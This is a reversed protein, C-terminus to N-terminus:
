YPTGDKRTYGNPGARLDVDPYECVDLPDRTGVELYVAPRGSRNVFCHADPHGARFACAQGARVVTEGADSILVVEGELVYVFEDERRHWHRQSSQVGPPLTTLNVGFQTLGGADGLKKWSQGACPADLPPPYSSGSTAAVASPDVVM